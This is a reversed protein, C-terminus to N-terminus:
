PLSASVYFLAGSVGPLIAIQCTFSLGVGMVKELFGIEPLGAGPPTHSPNV